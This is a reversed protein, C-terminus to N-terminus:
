KNIKKLKTKEMFYKYIFNVKQRDEGASTALHVTHGPTLSPVWMQPGSCSQPDAPLVPLHFAQSQCTKM